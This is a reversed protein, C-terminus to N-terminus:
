AFGDTEPEGARTVLKCLALWPCTRSFRAGAMGPVLKWLALWPCTRSIKSGTKGQFNTTVSKWLALWPCSECLALWPCTRATFGRGTKGALSAPSVTWSTAYSPVAGMKPSSSSTSSLVAPAPRFAAAPWPARRLDPAPRKTANTKLLLRSAGFFASIPGRKSTKIGHTSRKAPFPAASTKSKGPGARPTVTSATTTNTV